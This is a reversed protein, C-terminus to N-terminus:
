MHLKSFHQKLYLGTKTANFVICISSFKERRQRLM